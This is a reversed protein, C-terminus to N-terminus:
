HDLNKLVQANNALIALSEIRSHPSMSFSLLEDLLKQNAEVVKVQYDDLINTSTEKQNAM